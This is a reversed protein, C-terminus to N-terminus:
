AGLPPRPSCPPSRWDQLLCCPSKPDVNRKARRHFRHNGFTCKIMQCFLVFRNYFCGRHEAGVTTRRGAEPLEAASHWGRRSTTAASTRAGRGSRGRDRFHYVSPFVCGEERYQAIRGRLAGSGASGGGRRVCRPNVARLTCAASYLKNSQGNDASSRTERHEPVVPLGCQGTGPHDLLRSKGKLHLAHHGGLLSCPSWCPRTWIRPLAAAM